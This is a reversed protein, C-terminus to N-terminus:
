TNQRSIYKCPCDFSELYNLCIALLAEPLCLHLRVFSCLPDGCYNPFRDVLPSSLIMADMQRERRQLEFLTSYVDITGVIIKKFPRRQPSIRLCDEEEGCLKAFASLITDGPTIIPNSAFSIVRGSPDTSYPMTGIKSLAEDAQQTRILDSYLQDDDMKLM